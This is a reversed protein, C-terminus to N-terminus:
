EGKQLMWARVMSELNDTHQPDSLEGYMWPQIVDERIDNWNRPVRAPFALRDPSPIQGLTQGYYRPFFRENVDSQSSFGGAIGFGDIRDEVSVRLLQAQTDPRFLWTIFDTAGRRQQSDRTMGVFVIDELVPIRDKGTIWRFDLNDRRNGSYSFYQGSSEYWFRVRENMLLEYPPDYLYKTHFQNELEVSQNVDRIWNDLYSLTARLADENWAAAAGNGATEHFNVGMTRGAVYLFERNWRPSFGMHTFHEGSSENYEAGLDRVEDLTVAFDPIDTNKSSRTFVVAPLNFSLPLLRQQGNQTGTPLIGPYFLTKDVTGRDLLRQVSDFYTLAASNNVFSGIAVDPHSGRQLFADTIDGVAELQVRYNDQSANYLEVYPAVSPRDTWLVLTKPEGTSCGSLLLLALLTSGALFTLRLRISM